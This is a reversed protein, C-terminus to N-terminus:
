KKGRELYEEAAKMAAAQAAHLRRNNGDLLYKGAVGQECVSVDGILSILWWRGDREAVLRYFKGTNCRGCYGFKEWIYSNYQEWEGWEVAPRNLLGIALANESELDAIRSQAKALAVSLYFIDRREQDEAAFAMALIGSATKDSM